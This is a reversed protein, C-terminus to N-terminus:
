QRSDYDMTGTLREAGAGPVVMLTFFHKAAGIPRSLKVKGDITSETGATVTAQLVDGTADQVIVQATGKALQFRGHVNATHYSRSTDLTIRKTGNLVLVFVQCHQPDGTALMEDTCRATLADDPARCGALLLLAFLFPSRM